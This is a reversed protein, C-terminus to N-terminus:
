FFFKCKDYQALTKIATEIQIFAKQSNTPEGGFLVIICGKLKRIENKTAEASIKTEDILTLQYVVLCTHRFQRLLKELNTYYEQTQPKNLKTYEVSLRFIMQNVNDRLETSEYNKKAIQELSREFFENNALISIVVHSNQSLKFVTYANLLIKFKTYFTSPTTLSDTKIWDRFALIQVKGRTLEDFLKSRKDAFLPLPKEEQSM